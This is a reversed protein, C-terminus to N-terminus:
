ARMKAISPKIGGVINIVDTPIGDIEDPIVNRPRNGHTFMFIIAIQDTIRGNIQKLGVAITSAGYMAQLENGRTQVIRTARREVDRNVMIIFKMTM